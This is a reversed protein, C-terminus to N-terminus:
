IGRGSTGCERIQPLIKEMTGDGALETIAQNVAAILSADEKRAFRSAMIGRRLLPEGSFKLAADPKQMFFGCDAFGAAGADIREAKLDRFSEVNGPSLDPCIRGAWRRWWRAAGGVVVFGRGTKWWLLNWSEDDRGSAQRTVIQQTYVFYPLSMAIHQQNDPTIELGNLIIDFNGRGLAPILQDWQNQVMQAKVGLKAAIADALECEFGVLHEPKQPDPYVYPAGGEADAGWRLVGSAKISQLHDTEASFVVSPRGALLLVPVLWLFTGKIRSLRWFASMLSRFCIM